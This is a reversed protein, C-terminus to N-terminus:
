LIFRRRVFVGGLIGLVILAVTSPEPSPVPIGYGVGWAVGSDNATAGGGYTPPMNAYAFLLGSEYTNALKPSTFFWTVDNPGLTVVDAIQVGGGADETEGLINHGTVIGSGPLPATFDSDIDDNTFGAVFFPHYPTKITFSSVTTGSANEIQYYYGWLNNGFYKVIWDIKLPQADGLLVPITTEGKVEDGPNWTSPFPPLVDAFSRVGMTAVLGVVATMMLLSKMAKM